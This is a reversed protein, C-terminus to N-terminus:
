SIGRQDHLEEPVESRAGSECAEYAVKAIKKSNQLHYRQKREPLDMFEHCWVVNPYIQPFCGLTEHDSKSKSM